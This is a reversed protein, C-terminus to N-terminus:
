PRVLPVAIWRVGHEDSVLLAVNRRKQDFSEDVERMVDDRGKIAKDQVRLLVDGEKLGLFSAFSKPKVQTLVLGEVGQAIKYRVRLSDNIMESQIGLDKATLRMDPRPQPNMNVTEPGMKTEGLNVQVTKAEGEHRLVVPVNADRPHAVVYRAAARANPIDQDGMRLIIDGVQIGAVSAPGGAHVLNVMAGTARQMGVADALEASVDQTDAEMTGHRIRGYKRLLQLILKVDNGPIAFNLGISGSVTSGPVTYLATNMGIVEGQDNFLPGGSNGPNISADIQLFSDFPTEQIDRDRASIIGATVTGGLGLPNGIAVVPTGQVMKDSDGFAVAMLPRAAQIRVLSLDIDPSRYIVEGRLRINDNLMVYIEDAGDTVHRNTCIIGDADVVFGTGVGTKTPVLAATRAEGTDNTALTPEHRVFSINVVQPLLRPILAALNPPPPVEARAAVPQLLLGVVMVRAAFPLLMALPQM